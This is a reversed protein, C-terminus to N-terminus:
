DPIWTDSDEDLIRTFRLIERVAAQQIRRNMFREGCIYLSALLEFCKGIHDDQDPTPLATVSETFLKGSYVYSLYHSMTGTSEEPLKITRTQGEAWEKKLAAAFFESDRTLHSGYAIIKQEDEGVLLTITSEDSFRSLLASDMAEHLTMGMADMKDPTSSTTKSTNNMGPTATIRFKRAEAQLKATYREAISLARPTGSLSM